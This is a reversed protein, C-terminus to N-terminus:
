GPLGYEEPLYLDNYEPSLRAILDVSNEPLAKIARDLKKLWRGEQKSLTM